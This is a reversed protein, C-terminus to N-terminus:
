RGSVALKAGEASYRTEVAAFGCHALPQGLGGLFSSSESLQELWGCSAPFHLLEVARQSREVFL